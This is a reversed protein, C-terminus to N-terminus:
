SGSAVLIRGGIGEEDVISDRTLEGLEMQCWRLKERRLSCYVVRGEKRTTVMESRRLIRLHWSLLPQSIRLSRAMETVSTEGTCSLFQVMRLRSEDALARLTLHLNNM